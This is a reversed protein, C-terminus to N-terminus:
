RAPSSTKTNRVGARRSVNDFKGGLFDKYESIEWIQTSAGDGRGTLFSAALVFFCVGAFRALGLRLNM